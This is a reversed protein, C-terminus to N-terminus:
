DKRNEEKGKKKEKIKTNETVKSNIEFYIKRFHGSRFTNLNQFINL